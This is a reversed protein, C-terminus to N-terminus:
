NEPIVAGGSSDKSAAARLARETKEVWTKQIPLIVSVTTGGSHTRVRFEGGVQRIRERMGQIGVGSRATSGSRNSPMGKGQDAIALEIRQGQRILRIKAAPSGSHRHINTLSEQIIRFITTEVEPALRGLDDSLQLDVPIRSRTSFGEVYWRVASPLGAEDLLPPHLLHSMTRLERSLQDLFQYSEAACQALTPDLTRAKEEIQGLNMQLAALTQGASDHLERAIRRREDDQMQLLRSSLQRLAATRVEVERELEEKRQIAAAETAKRSTIEQVIGYICQDGPSVARGRVHVWIIGRRPHQYRYELELSGSKACGQIRRLVDPADDAHVRECWLQFSPQQGAAFGFLQCAGPSWKITEGKDPRWEWTSIEAARLAKEFDPGYQLIQTAYPEPAKFETDTRNQFFADGRRVKEVATLLDRALSSKVVYARAGANYAQRVMEDSEYQTMIIVESEPLLTRLQRTAELGNLRPMSVDMVIVDPKLQQAKQIADHGDGAEGAVQYEARSQLLATVGRRVVEHDDVVLIRVPKVTQGAAGRSGQDLAPVTTVPDGIGAASVM